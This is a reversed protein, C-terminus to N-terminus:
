EFYVMEGKDDMAVNDLEYPIKSGSIKLTRKLDSFIAKDSMTVFSTAKGKKGARGTRGVRHTYHQITAPMQFNVVLGIDKIDIGRGLVDTAVMVKFKNARFANITMSRVGQSKGSHLTGVDIDWREMQRSIVDCMDKTNSFVIVQRGDVDLHEKVVKELKSIRAEQKDPIIIIEQHIDENIQGAEGIFVMVPNRMYGRALKEVKRPMTASFMYTKRSISMSTNTMGPVSIEFEREKPIAALITQLQEEFGMEVMRDAEDIIVFSCQNLVLHRKALMDAARGPTAIVIEKGMRIMNGQEQM